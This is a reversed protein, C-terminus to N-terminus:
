RWRGISGRIFRKSSSEWGAPAPQREAAAANDLGGAPTLEEQLHRLHEALLQEAGEDAGLRAIFAAPDPAGGARVSSEFEDALQDFRVVTELPLDSL